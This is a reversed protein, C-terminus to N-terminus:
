ARSDTDLYRLGHSLVMYVFIVVSQGLSGIHAAASESECVVCHELLSIRISVTAITEYYKQLTTM